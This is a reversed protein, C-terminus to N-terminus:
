KKCFNGEFCFTAFADLQLIVIKLLCTILLKLTIQRSSSNLIKTIGVANNVM